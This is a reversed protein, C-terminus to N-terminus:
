LVQGCDYLFAMAADRTQKPVWEINALTNWIRYCDDLINKGTLQTHDLVDALHRINDMGDIEGRLDKNLNHENRQQWVFPKGFRVHYGHERMVRQTVLSAYIDDYRGVGPWMFFAPVLERVIGISQSNFPAYCHNDTVFGSHLLESVQHVQPHQSIRDVASTDPDGLCIGQMVGVKARTTFGVTTSARAADQPYGRQVVQRHENPRLLEGVNFWGSGNDIMPGSFLSSLGFEFHDFFNREMPINDDDISVIIDAGWSLAELFAINRRQICNFSIAESCKWKKQNEPHLYGEYNQVLVHPTKLDGAIFFRVSESCARYLGLVDPVNVTTTCLAIKM